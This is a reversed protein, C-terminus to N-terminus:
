NDTLVGNPADATVSLTITNSGPKIVIERPRPHDLENRGPVCNTNELNSVKSASVARPM